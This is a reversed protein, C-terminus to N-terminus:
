SPCWGGVVWGESVKVALPREGKQHNEEIWETAESLNDFQEYLIIKINQPLLSLNGSYPDSGNEAEIELLRDSYKNNLEKTTLAEPFHEYQFIAAM